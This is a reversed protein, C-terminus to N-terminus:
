RPGSLQQSSMYSSYYSSTTASSGVNPMAQPYLYGVNQENGGEVVSAETFRRGYFRLFNLSEVQPDSLPLGGELMAVVNTMTPRLVPDEHVCCLAVRVLKEVEQTQVQGALRPDVLELYRGQEHMELARLPFYDEGGNSSGNAASGGSSHTPTPLSCNKKGRVLELLVMGYSYVDTKETIASNTLWEPALYGRTGRMTTFWSSQEPSLLKSLGFDSIKAVLNDHLLINEPKVDCHIIKHECGSHLYALGRATGIAIEFRERWELLPAGGNGNGNGNGFLARDLSSRNMYEYVLFRSERHACFGKLRVLNLHHIKGIIAIETCFEKRGQVGLSSIKKVAVATGDSLTGKYVTGFGGSGIQTGFNETADVLEEYDFRVPLGPISVDELEGYSHSSSSSSRRQKRKTKGTAKGSNRRRFWVIGWAVVLGFIVVVSSPILVLVVVPISRRRNEDEPAQNTTMLKIYGFRDNRGSKKIISGLFERVMYCSASSQSHFIGLCSCNRSCLDECTSLNVNFAAPETFDNAFYDMDSGLRLYSIAAAASISKNCSSPMSLKGNVPVCGDGDATQFGPPCSSCSGSYCVGLSGCIFPIRCTDAPANFGSVESGAGNLRMTSLAGSSGQKLIAFDPSKFIVQIAIETGNSGFLFIGNSRLEAYEVRANTDRFAGNYMSLKWYVMKNWLFVADNETIKFEYEGEAPEGEKVSSVLSKGVLLRQGVVMTDTPYDFSEWLSNNSSDLLVLNGSERLELSSVSVNPSSFPPVSWIPKASDYLALGRRSLRLQASDSVPNNRNAAWVVTHSLTHIVVFYYSREEPKVNTVAARFTSNPSSLFAGSTDIFGNFSATFNPPIPHFALPGSLSLTCSLLLISIIFFFSLSSSNSPSSPSAEMGMAM